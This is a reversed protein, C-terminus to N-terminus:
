AKGKWEDILSNIMLTLKARFVSDQKMVNVTKDITGDIGSLVSKAIKKTFEQKIVEPFIDTNIESSVVAEFAESIENEHNEIVNSVLKKLPSGYATLTDHIVKKMAAQVSHLIDKELNIPFHTAEVKKDIQIVKGALISRFQENEKKIEAVLKYVNDIANQENVTIIM